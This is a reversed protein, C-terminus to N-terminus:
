LPQGALRPAQMATIYQFIVCLKDDAAYSSSVGQIFFSPTRLGTHETRLFKQIERNQAHVTCAHVTHESLMHPLPSLAIDIVIDISLVGLPLVFSYFCPPLM